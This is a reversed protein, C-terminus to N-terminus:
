DFCIAKTVAGGEPKRHGQIIIPGQDVRTRCDFIPILTSLTLDLKYGPYFPGYSCFEERDLPYGDKHMSGAKKLRFNSRHRSKVGDPRVYVDTGFKGNVSYPAENVLKFCIPEATIKQFPMEQAQTQVQASILLLCLGMIGLLFGSRM